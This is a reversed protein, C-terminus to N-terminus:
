LTRVSETPVRVPAPEPAYETLERVVAPEPAYETPERVSGPELVCETPGRVTAPKPASETAERVPASETPERVLAPVPNPETAIEVRFASGSLHLALNVYKELSEEPHWYPMRSKFPEALGGWFFVMYVIILFCSPLPCVISLPACPVLLLCCAMHEVCLSMQHGAWACWCSRSLFMVQKPTIKTPRGISLFTVTTKFKRWKYM